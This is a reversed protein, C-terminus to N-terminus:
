YGLFERRIYNTIIGSFLIRRLPPCILQTFLRRDDANISSACPAKLIMCSYPITNAHAVPHSFSAMFEAAIPGFILFALVSFLEAPDFRLFPMIPFSPQIRAPIIVTSLAAMSGFVAGGTLGVSRRAFLGEGLCVVSLGCKLDCSSLREMIVINSFLCLNM